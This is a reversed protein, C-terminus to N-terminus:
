GFFGPLQVVFSVVGDEFEPFVAGHYKTVIRMVAALGIGEHSQKTTYGPQFCNRFSDADRTCPNTVKIIHNGGRKMILVSIWSGQGGGEVEDVANQILNGIVTNIEYATCPVQRLDNSIAVQLEIGKQAALERFSNLMASVAPDHLPLMDNMATTTKVMTRVYDGCETYKGQEIMGSIAQIHFNFDHRQSRIIQMLNLLEGQYQKNLIAEIRQVADFALQRLVLLLAVVIATTFLAMARGQALPLGGLVTLQYWVWATPLTLVGLVTATSMSLKRSQQWDTVNLIDPTEPLITVKKWLCVALLAGAALLVGPGAASCLLELLGSLLATLIAAIASYLVPGRFLLWAAIGLLVLLLGTLALYWGTRPLLAFLAGFGACLFLVQKARERSMGLTLALGWFCSLIGSLGSLLLPLWPAIRDAM